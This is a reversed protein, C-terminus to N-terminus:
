LKAGKAEGGLVRRKNWKFTGSETDIAKMPHLGNANGVLGLLDFGMMQRLRPDIKPLDTPNM